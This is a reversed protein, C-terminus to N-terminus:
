CLTKGFGVSICMAYCGRAARHKVMGENRSRNRREEQFPQRFACQRKIWFPHIAYNGSMIYAFHARRELVLNM